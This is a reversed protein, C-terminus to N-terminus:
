PHVLSEHYIWEDRATSQTSSDLLLSTGFAVTEIVQIHPFESRANFSISLLESVWILSDTTEDRYRFGSTALPKDLEAASDCVEQSSAATFGLM